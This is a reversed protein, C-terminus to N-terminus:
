PIIPKRNAAAGAKCRNQPLWWRVMLSLDYRAHFHTRASRMRGMLAHLHILSRNTLANNTNSSKIPLGPLGAVNGMGCLSRCM